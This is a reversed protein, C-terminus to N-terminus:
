YKEPIFLPSIGVKDLQNQQSEIYDLTRTINAQETSIEKSEVAVQYIKDAQDLLQTDLNAILAAKAHFDQMSHQLSASWMNILDQMSKGRLQSSIEAVPVEVKETKKAEVNASATNAASQPPAPTTSPVNSSGLAVSSSQVASINKKDDSKITGSNNNAAGSSASAAGFSFSPTAASSNAVPAPQTPKAFSFDSNTAATNITNELSSSSTANTTAGKSSSNVGNTAATVGFSFSTPAASGSSNAAPTPTGFTFGGTAGAAKPTALASVSLPTQQPNNDNSNGFSFGGPAPTGFSFKSM